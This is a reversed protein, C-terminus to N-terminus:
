MVSRTVISIEFNLARTQYFHTFHNFNIRLKETRCPKVSIFIGLIGNQGFNSNKKKLQHKQLMSM